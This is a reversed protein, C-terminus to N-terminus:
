LIHSKNLELLLWGWASVAMVPSLGLLSCHTPFHWGWANLRQEAQMAEVNQDSEM